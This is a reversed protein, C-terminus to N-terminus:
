RPYDVFMKQTLMQLCSSFEISASKLQRLAKLIHLKEGGMIPFLFNIRKSKVRKGDLKQEKSAFWVVLASKYKSAVGGKVMM